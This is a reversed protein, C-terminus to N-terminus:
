ANEEAGKETDIDVGIEKKGAGEKFLIAFLIVVVLGMVGPVLWINTWNHSGDELAFTGAVRGAIENGIVMGAGYTVMAILGQANARIAQPAVNDVYIQGTVFFFDYCIGHLLIGLYFLMVLPMEPSGYAFFAYRIVWAIMGVLLMKKVGLRKFFFPMVLMFGVESMQGMTMKGAVNEVGVENLFMNTFAYYFALPICILLSGMVFVFFSFDKMLALAKLGLIDSISIKEGKSGPPTNPLLFSFVGLVLSAAAAMLIPYKTADIPKDGLQDKLIPGLVFSIVLGAVIWGITGLVRIAPFQKETDTMQNFAIANVLALTPMYCLAYALLVWFFLAPETITSVFYMLVAGLLHLIGLVVQAPFFRDAVMGVFFPSLIAAWATTSYARGVHLDAFGLGQKGLYAGLTVVWAGWIFFELFMMISLRIRVTAKM